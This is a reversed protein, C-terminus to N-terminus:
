VGLLPLHKRKQYTFGLEVCHRIVGVPLSESLSLTIARNGQLSLVDGYLERFTDVLKTNCNFFLYYNDPSKPKWDIRIPSGSNVSYSPEGWKLSETVDGLELDAAVSLILARLEELKSRVHHPYDNFRSEVPENM